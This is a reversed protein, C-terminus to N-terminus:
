GSSSERPRCHIGCFGRSDPGMGEYAPHQFSNLMVLTSVFLSCKRLGYEQRAACRPCGQRRFDGAEWRAAPAPGCRAERSHRQAFDTRLRQAWIAALSETTTDNAKADAPTVTIFLVGNSYISADRGSKTVTIAPVGEGEDLKLLNNARMQVANTREAITYGGAANRIRLLLYGGLWINGSQESWAISCTLTSLLVATVLMAIHKKM